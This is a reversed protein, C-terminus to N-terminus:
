PPHRRGSRALLLTLGVFMEPLMAADAAVDSHLTPTQAQAVVLSQLSKQVTLDPLCEVPVVKM